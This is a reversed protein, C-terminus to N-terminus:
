MARQGRLSSPRAQSAAAPAHAVGTPAGSAPAAPLASSLMAAIVGCACRVGQGELPRLRM